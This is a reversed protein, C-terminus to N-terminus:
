NHRSMKAKSKPQQCDDCLGFLVLHDMDVQFSAVRNIKQFLHKMTAHSVEAVHNCNRCVLHHHPERDAIEYYMQRGIQAAVLLRMECLFDVNRYVTARNVTPLKAQVRRYIEDPTTHGGSEHIADLIFQRQRTFRFGGARVTHACDRAYSKM